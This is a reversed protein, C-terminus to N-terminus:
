YNVMFYVTKITELKRKKETLIIISLNVMHSEIRTTEKITFFVITIFTILGM